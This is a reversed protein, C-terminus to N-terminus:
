TQNIQVDQVHEKLFTRIRKDAIDARDSAMVGADFLSNASSKDNAMWRAAGDSFSQAFQGAQDTYEYFNLRVYDMKMPMGSVESNRRILLAYADAKEKVRAIDGEKYMLLVGEKAGQMNDLTLLTRDRFVVTPDPTTTQKVMVDPQSTPLPTPDILTLEPSIPTIQEALPANVVTSVPESPTNEQIQVPTTEPTPVPVPPSTNQVCGAVLSLIFLLLIFVSIHPAM